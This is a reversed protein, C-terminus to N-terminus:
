NGKKNSKSSDLSTKQKYMFNDLMKQRKCDIDQRKERCCELADGVKDLNSKAVQLLGQAIDLEQFDKKKIAESLRNNAEAFVHKAKSLDDKLQQESKKVEKEKEGLKRKREENLKLSQQEKERQEKLAQKKSETLRFEAKETEIRDKYKQYSKAVSSQLEKTMPIDTVKGKYMGVADRTLRLGNLSEESLLTRENTLLKKNISLSREVDANGHSICLCSIVLKRLNKYKLRGSPTKRSLVYGWYHDIRDIEDQDNYIKSDPIDDARYLKWEDRILPVEEKSIGPLTESLRKLHKFASEQERVEPHLCQINKVLAVDVPLTKALYSTVEQYFKRMDYQLSKQKGSDLKSLTKETDSGVEMEKLDLCNNLDKVDLKVLKSGIADAVIDHKVFRLMLTRILDCAESYLMHILPEQKQFMILFREFVPGVSILFQIQALIEKSKLKECIRLYRSNKKLYKDTGQDKSIQPLVKLFYRSSDEWHKLLRGLAPILTLWRCQVHRVFMNEDLNLDELVAAYDERQCTHSKFWQFLDIALEEADEGYVNLGKRFGNHVAHISCPVFETLEPLGLSAKHTNVHNWVTKNVNPGDSGLSVLLDLPIQYPTENLTDILAQGVDVGKAHGFLESKLFMTSIEGKEENWFRILIDCQKMNQVTGTEDFQITYPIKDTAIKNAITQRFYPGLGDSIMYSVKSKSMTFDKAVSSGPFMSQFLEPTGDCSSYTYGSAAVKFAWLTEAKCVQEKHSLSQLQIISSKKETDGGGQSTSAVVSSQKEVFFKKQSCSNRLKMNDKHKQGDAHNMLQGVGTNSCSISKDCIFCFGNLNSSSDKRCWQNLKQGNKDIKNLWSANFHTKGGPM